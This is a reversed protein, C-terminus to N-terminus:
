KLPPSLSSRDIHKIDPLKTHNNFESASKRDLKSTNAPNSDLKLVKNSSEQFDEALRIKKATDSDKNKRDRSSDLSSRSRKLSSPKGPSKDSASTPVIRSDSRTAHDAFVQSDCIVEDDSDSEIKYSPKAEMESSMSKSNAKSTLKKLNTSTPKASPSLTSKKVPSEHVRSQQLSSSKSNLRDSKGAPKRDPPQDPTHSPAVSLSKRAGAVILPSPPLGAEAKPGLVIYSLTSYPTFHFDEKLCMDLLLHVVVTEAFTRTLKSNTASKVRLNTAGKGLWADLLKQGTLRQDSAAAHTIIASLQQLHETLDVQKTERPRRCHDCQGDCQAANWREGFHESLLMRRCRAADICYALVDYFKELGTQETFVMTSQKFMDGFRWFLLCDAPAGDRGARGSEQYFNEMSKSVSNHIVFRVDPKDIGMGFAITAVVAQYENSTWKRHVKSRVDAEMQGHYPAVKLGLARLDAVLDLTEKITTTYIIGSQSRYRTQLLEAIEQVSDKVVASKERVEYYLNPRNFSAKLVLCDPINLIKLVDAVVRATATATLGLLPVGPFTQRLVGLFKYDPRFDHGWQSCCHVEDIAVRALRSAQHAKQLRAMLRKSKALKEPTVYLLKCPWAADTLGTMVCAVDEKSSTATLSAAKIGRRQLGLLQDEILSVLPSVVLTVGKSLLAPLQYCLSKGGGTPMILICNTGSLTANMTPLQHPRLESIGFSTSLQRRLESSWPYKEQQWDQQALEASQQQQLADQLKAKRRQLVTRRDQLVQIEKDIKKLAADISKVATKPDSYGQEEAIIICDNNAM